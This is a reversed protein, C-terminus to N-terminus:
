TRRTTRACARRSSTRRRRRRSVVTTPRGSRPGGPRAGARSTRSRRSGGVDHLQDRVRGPRARRRERVHRRRVARRAQGAADRSRAPRRRQGRPRRPVPARRVRGPRRARAPRRGARREPRRVVLRLRRPNRRRARPLDLQLRRPVPHGPQQVDRLRVPAGREVAARGARVVARGHVVHGPLQERHRRRPRRALRRVLDGTGGRRAHERDPFQVDYDADKRNDQRIVALTGDLADVDPFFQHGEDAPDVAVPDSWTAGDDYSAVVYVLSQGVLGAGASSYTSDSPETSGPRIENYVLFVGEDASAQDATVRPELPVRHFVFGSPCEFAGDGCDRVPDAPAYATIGRIPEADSFSAGGDTSRAFGLGDARHSSPDDFTRFTLYVDGDGEVAIDCGQVSALGPTTIATPKSFTEGADISRSFLIRNQGFGTFRSWCVYVNGDHAGGTRDVELMPKDQFIGQFNRSPTGRGVIRTREYDLPFGNPHPDTLYTAVYVDGNIPGARNFSIGGVFLNGDPDFAAIPDGADTHTGFLPSAMGEPSTDQPYGPVISDTWTEGRDTSYAFGQWGAGLDTLCYDNWGAIVLDPDTPDIVTFPENGQRRSGGDTTDADSAGSSPEEGDDLTSADNCHEIGADTGGDHRVYTQGSIRDDGDISPVQAGAAPGIFISAALTAIAALATPVRAADRAPRPRAM